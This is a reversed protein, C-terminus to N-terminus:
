NSLTNGTLPVQATGAQCCTGITVTVASAPSYCLGVSDYYFVYYTGAGAQTVATGSLATGTHTNNTFWVLSTSGSPLTGTFATTLNVTTSPCANSISSKVPPAIIGAACSKIAFRLTNVNTAGATYNFVGNPTGDSTTSNLGEAVIGWGTNLEIIIPNTITTTGVFGANKSLIFNYNNGELLKGALITFNGSADVAVVDVVMNNSTDVVNMWLGGGQTGTTSNLAPTVVKGSIAPSAFPLLAYFNMDGGSFKTSNSRTYTISPNSGTGYRNGIIHTIGDPENSPYTSGNPLTVNTNNTIRANQVAIWGSSLTYDTDQSVINATLYLIDADTRGLPSASKTGTFTYSTNSTGSYMNEGSDNKVSKVNEYVSVIVSMEDGDTKPNNLDTFSIELNGTATDPIMYYWDQHDNMLYNRRPNSEFESYWYGGLFSSEAIAIGNVKVHTYNLNNGISNNAVYGDINSPWNTNYPNQVREIAESIVLVRNKNTTGAPIAYTITGVTNKGVASYKASGILTPKPLQAFICASFLALM